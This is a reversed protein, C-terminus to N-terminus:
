RPLTQSLHTMSECLGKQQFGKAFFGIGPGALASCTTAVVAGTAITAAQGSLGVAAAVGLLTPAFVFAAAAVALALAIMIGGLMKLGGSPKGQMTKALENYTHKDMAGTLLLHTKQLAETLETTKEKGKLQEVQQILKSVAEDIRHSPPVTKFTNLQNFADTYAQEEQSMATNSPTGPAPPRMQAVIPPRVTSASVPQGTLQSLKAETDAKERTLRAAELANAQIRFEADIKEQALRDIEAQRAKLEADYQTSLTSMTNIQKEIDTHLDNFQKTKPDTPKRSSTARAAEAAKLQETAHTISADLLGKAKTLDGQKATSNALAIQQAIPEKLLELIQMAQTLRGKSM